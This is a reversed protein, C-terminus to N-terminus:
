ADKSFNARESVFADVQERIWANDRYLEFAAKRSFEIKKKEREIGSWDTTVAALIEAEAEVAIKQADQKQKRKLIAKEAAKTKANKFAASDAGLLKIVADTDKWTVPHLLTMEAGTEADEEITITSIDM